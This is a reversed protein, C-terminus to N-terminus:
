GGSVPPLIAVTCGDTLVTERAVLQQDIALACFGKMATLAECEAALADFVDSATSSIPLTLKKENCGVAEAAAAFLLV